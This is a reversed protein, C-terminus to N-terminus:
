HSPHLTSHIFNAPYGNHQLVKLLHHQEQKLFHELNNLHEHLTRCTIFIDDLYVVVGPIEQLLNEMTQQFIGPASAVGFPLRKYRYLGRHTNDDCAQQSTLELKLQQYARDLDLTTFSQGGSLRAFMNEIKPIPYTKLKAVQNM